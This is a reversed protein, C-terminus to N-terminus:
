LHVDPVEKPDTSQMLRKGLKMDQGIKKWRKYQGDILRQGKVYDLKLNEQKWQM